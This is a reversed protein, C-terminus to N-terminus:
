LGLLLAEYRQTMLAVGHEAFARVRAAAGLSAAFAPGRLLRELAAALAPADAEPVLLGTVGEELLGEVGPVRSAVCACGAAMGEVLALPMGEWHTALM